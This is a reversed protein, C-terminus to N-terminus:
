LALVDKGNWTTMVLYRRCVATRQCDRRRLHGQHEIIVTM